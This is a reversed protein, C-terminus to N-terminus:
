EKRGVLAAWEGAERREVLSLGAEQFAQAVAAEQRVLFGSAILVGGPGLARPLGARVMRAVPEALINAVVGYFPSGLAELDLVPAGWGDEEGGPVTGWRVEIAQELGNRAANERAARVALPDADLAVVQVAGLRVAAIALIGSGTGVDLVRAGPQLHAELLELCLRTTEHLGTGFALGPDLRVVREGPRPTYAEWSPVIALTRGIHQPRYARKWAEAWLDPELRRFTPEPLDPYLRQLLAIGLALEERAQEGSRDAPLYTKLRLVGEGPVEELAVGGQGWRELLPVAAALTEPATSTLTVEVWALSEPPIPNDEEPAEPNSPM